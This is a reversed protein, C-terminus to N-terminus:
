GGSERGYGRGCGRGCRRGRRLSFRHARAHEPWAQGVQVGGTMGHPGAVAVGAALHVRCNGNSFRGAAM